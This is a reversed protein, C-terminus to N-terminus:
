RESREMEIARKLLREVKRNVAQVTRDLRLDLSTIEQAKNRVSQMLPTIRHFENVKDYRLIAQLSHLADRMEKALQIKREETVHISEM